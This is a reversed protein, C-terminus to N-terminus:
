IPADGDAAAAQLCVWADWVSGRPGSRWPIELGRQEGRIVTRRTVGLREAFEAQTLSLQRRLDRVREAPELYRRRQSPMAGRARARAGNLWLVISRADSRRTSSELM